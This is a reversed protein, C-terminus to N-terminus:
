KFVRRLTTLILIAEQRDMLKGRGNDLLELIHWAAHYQIRNLWQLEDMEYGDAVEMQEDSRIKRWSEDDTIM